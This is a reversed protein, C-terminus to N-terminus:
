GAAQVDKFALLLCDAVVTQSKSASSTLFCVLNIQDIEGKGPLLPEKQILEGMICGISWMDVATSYETEGLLLEPARAHSHINGPPGPENVPLPLDGSCCVSVVDLTAFPIYM